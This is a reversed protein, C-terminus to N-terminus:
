RKKNDITAAPEYAVCVSVISDGDKGSIITPRLVIASGTEATVCAMMEAVDNRLRLEGIPPNNMDYDKLIPISKV